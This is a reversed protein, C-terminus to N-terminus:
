VGGAFMRCTALLWVSVQRQPTFQVRAPGVLQSVPRTGQVPFYARREAANDPVLKALAEKSKRSLRASQSTHAGAPSVFTVQLNALQPYRAVAARISEESDVGDGLAEEWFVQTRSESGKPSFM